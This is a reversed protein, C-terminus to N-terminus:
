FVLNVMTSENSAKLPMQLRRNSWSIAQTDSDAIPTTQNSRVVDDNQQLKATANSLKLPWKCNVITNSKTSGQNQSMALRNRKWKHSQKCNPNQSQEPRHRRWKTTTTTIAAATSQIANSLKLPWKCNVMTNINVCGTNQNIAPRNQKWKNSQKYNRYNSQEPRHHRLTRQQQQWTRNQSAEWLSKRQKNRRWKPQQQEPRRRRWKTTTTPNISQNISQKPRFTWEIYV